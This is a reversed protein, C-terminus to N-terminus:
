QVSEAPWMSGSSTVARMSAYVEPDEDPWLQQWLRGAREIPDFGLPSTM